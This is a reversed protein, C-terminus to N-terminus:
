RVHLLARRVAYVCFVVCRRSEPIVRTLRELRWCGLTAAGHSLQM